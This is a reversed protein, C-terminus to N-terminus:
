HGSALLSGIGPKYEYFDAIEHLHAIIQEDYHKKLASTLIDHEGKPDQSLDYLYSQPPSDYTAYFYRGNDALLGYAARVDSALFLDDRHYSHLEEATEMLLPHGFIPNSAIPRHGLLYYLSPTIDILASIREDDHVFKNQMSKPLHVILPVRMVEPYIVVSHSNRGLEGTADGHDSTVIIISDDYLGRAKLWGIFGGMCDDVQHLEFSIRYNFGQQAPWHAEKAQPMNNRAFQHVNKPQAYFFIPTAMDSRHDIASEAQQVTSCVELQNWLKKDTDLKILDDSPSLIERLVEDYSVIMQYGDTKALKELSNVREFPQMFHAHLLLAGAWIAPESLSTGAYPTWANRVVVSDRALADLNPTFTAKPNYAGLYDPRMSDIVFLFINPREGRTAVLPDVLKLDFRAQAGRIETYERLIRCLEGCPESRRGKGLLRHALNFSADRAAYTEISREIDDDTAGLPKAWYINTAQLAEYSLFVILLTVLITKLSYKGLKPWLRFICFSLVGWFLLTFTGQIIGNWDGGGVLTPLALAVVGFVTAIIVLPLARRGSGARVASGDPVPSRRSVSFGLLTLAAALSAAYLHALWGEFSLANELFRIALTWLSGFILLGFLGWSVFHPHLSKSAAIRVLNLISVLIIAVLVHSVVSWFTLYIDSVHHSLTRTDSYSRLEAGAMSLLAIGVALLSGAAYSLHSDRWAVTETTASSHFECHAVVLIVVWLAAVSGFYAFRNSELGVLFPRVSLFIGACALIGFCVFYATRKVRSHYAVAAAALALWFLLAHHRAFWPIWAYAPSKIMAYYTYPLFALLCYVSTLAFYAGFLIKLIAESWKRL